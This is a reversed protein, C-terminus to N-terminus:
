KPFTIPVRMKSRVAEGNREGPAFKWQSVARLAEGDFLPNPPSQVQPDVVRGNVDVIFIVYVTAPAKRRMANSIKPGPQYIVRPQKDLDASGFLADEDAADQVINNLDVAFDGAFMGSSAGSDLLGELTGLDIKQPEEKLEPPPEEEQEEEPEEEVDPPPPPPPENFTEVEALGIFNQGVKAIAQLVPLVLFFTLTLWAAGNM